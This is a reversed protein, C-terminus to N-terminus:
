RAAVPFCDLGAGAAAACLSIASARSAVPGVRLRVLPKGPVSEYRPTQGSVGTMRGSIRQWATEAAAKGSYAGLQILWDGGAEPTAAQSRAVRVPMPPSELRRLAAPALAVLDGSAPAAFEAEIDRAVGCFGERSRPDAFGNYVQTMHTDLAAQWGAGHSARFRAGEAAYASALLARRDGLLRNYEAVIAPDRCSLAAVNLAARVHWLAEPAGISGNIAVPTAAPAPSPVPAPEPEPKQQHTCAALLAGISFLAALSRGKSGSM